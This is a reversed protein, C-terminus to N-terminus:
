QSGPAITAGPAVSAARTVDITAELQDETYTGQATQPPGPDGGNPPVVVTPDQIPLGSLRQFNEIDANNVRSRAILAITQGAGNLGSAYVSGLDYIATFDAPFVWHCGGNVCSLTAAPSPALGAPGGRHMPNLKVTYLGSVARVVPALAAPISPEAAISFRRESNVAYRRMPAGFAQGVAAASGSFTVLVRSNSVSEVQLNQSALWGTVAAIDHSSVGFLEGVEVPTLWRHYDSSGPEQQRRLFEEFAHQREPSRALVIVAHQIPFDDPLVGADSEPNAWAPPRDPLSVRRARDLPTVGRDAPAQVGAPM